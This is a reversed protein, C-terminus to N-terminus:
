FLDIFDVTLATGRPNVDRPQVGLLLDRPVDHRWYREFFEPWFTVGVSPLALNYSGFPVGESALAADFSAPDIGLMTLSNGVFLGDRDDAAGASVQALKQRVTPHYYSTAALPEEEDAGYLLATTARDAGIAVLLVLLAYTLCTLGTKM